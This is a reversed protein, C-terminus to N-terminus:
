EDTMENEEANEYANSCEFCIQKLHDKCIWKNFKGCANKTKRYKARPCFFCRGSSGERETTEIQLQQGSIRAAKIRIERPLCTSAARKAIAPKILEIALNRLYIRRQIKINPNNAIYIIQSNIGSINLM